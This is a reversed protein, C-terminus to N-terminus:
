KFVQDSGFLECEICNRNICLHDTNARDHKYELQMIYIDFDSYMSVWAWSPYDSFIPKLSFRKVFVKTLFRKGFAFFTDSVASLVLILVRYTQDRPLKQKM